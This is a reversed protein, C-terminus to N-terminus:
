FSHMSPINIIAKIVSINLEYEGIDRTWSPCAVIGSFSITHPSRYCVPPEITKLCNETVKFSHAQLPTAKAATNSLSSVGAQVLILTPHPFPNWSKAVPQKDPLMIGM